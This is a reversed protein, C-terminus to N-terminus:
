AKAKANVESKRGAVLKISWYVLNLFTGLFVTVGWTRPHDLPQLVRHAIDHVLLTPQTIIDWSNWRLFRGIYIGFGSLFLATSVLFSVKWQEMRHILISELDLLSLVGFLLGTWAYSLILILDFWLPVGLGYSLHFLDTLIYPANPLFLLWLALLGYFFFNNKVARYEDKLWKLILWPISALFLNWILFIFQLNEAICIRTITLIGCWATLLTLLLLDRDEKNFSNWIRM